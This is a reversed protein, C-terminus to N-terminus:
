RTRAPRPDTVERRAQVWCEAFREGLRCIGETGFHIRDNQHSSRPLDDTIALVVGNMDDAVSQQAARVTPTWQNAHNIQGIVVPLSADGTLKRVADILARLNAGYADAVEKPATDSEGQMWIFGAVRVRTGPNANRLEVLARDLRLTMAAFHSRPDAINWDTHLSANNVGHKFIAVRQRAPDLRLLARGLTIEAGFGSNGPPGTVCQKTETPLRLAGWAPPDSEFTPGYFLVDPQPQRLPDDAPLEDVSTSAGVANSQGALVFVLLEDAFVPTSAFMIIILFRLRM